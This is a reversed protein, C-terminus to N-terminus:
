PVSVQFSPDELLRLLFDARFYGHAAVSSERRFVRALRYRERFERDAFLDRFITNDWNGPRRLERDLAALDVWESRLTARPLLADPAVLFFYDRDFCAHGLPGRKNKCSSALVPDNLGMMDLVVGPYGVSIGGAAAYAIRPLSEAPDRVAGSSRPPAFLEALREGHRRDAKAIWYLSAVHLSADEVSGDPRNNRVFAAWQTPVMAALLALVAGLVAYARSTTLRALVTALGLASPPVLLLLVAQYFRHGGFVDGGAGVPLGWGVLVWTWPLLFASALTGHRRKERMVARDSAPEFRRRLVWGAMSLLLAAGLLAWQQSVYSLWYESGPGLRERWPLSVKAYVTNPLLMGFTTWRWALLVLLAFGGAALVTAVGTRVDSRERRALVGVGLVSAALVLTWVPGEPRCFVLLIASWALIRVAFPRGQRFSEVGVWALALAFGYLAADMLSMVNWVLWFPQTAVLLSASAAVWAAHAGAGIGRLARFTTTTVLVFAAISLASAILVLAVGRHSGFLEAYACCVLWAESTFGQVGGSSPNYVLGRGEVLHRSYRLFINADDAGGFGLAVTSEITFIGVGLVVALGLASWLLARTLRRM